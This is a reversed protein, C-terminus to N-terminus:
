SEARILSGLGADKLEQFLLRKIEYGHEKQLSQALLDAAKQYSFSRIVWKIRAISTPAMSLCRIGMGLLLIAAAPHSSMEGCVCVPKVFKKGAEVIYMLARLVAPHMSDYLKVVRANNRDVALLYQTLDNTGISLFDVRKAFSDAILAAAPTEIMVGIKPTKIDYGQARVAQLAQEFLGKATELEKISSMLPFLVNLNSYNESAKLMARLQMMLIEPHDLTVRIGRWGLYPNAESVPFYSLPKDGGVDLTRLTVPRPYYNKLVKLYIEVQESESPFSSRIMFPFETRYLGVGDIEERLVSKEDMLLGSNVMLSVTVNDTTQAPLDRLGELDKKLNNEERILRYYEFRVFAPPQVYIRGQYGDAIVECQDLWGFSVNSAGMVAPIGMARALIAVHSSSSGNASIIGVIKDAPVEALQTVGINEGVLITHRPYHIPASGDAHLKQFIRLGIERVDDARERLYDDGISSFRLCHEKVTDRLAAQAWNGLRIREITDNLLTNSNALLIYADFLANDEASLMDSLRTQMSKIEDCVAAVASKFLSIESDVNEIKRDPVSYLDSSSYVVLATGIAVGPAGPICNFFKEQLRKAGFPYNSEAALKAHAIAGALQSALAMMFAVSTETFARAEKRQVVLAGLVQRQHIVPVGLYANLVDDGSNIFLRYRADERACALNVTEATRIVYGTIGEDIEVRLKNVWESNLGDTKRLLYERQNTNVLYFSAADVAMSKRIRTVIISLVQDFDYATNVEQIIRRLVDLM